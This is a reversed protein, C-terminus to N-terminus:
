YNRLSVTTQFSHSAYGLIDSIDGKELTFKITIVTPKGSQSNDCSFGCNSLKVDDATLCDLRPLASNSAIRESAPSLASLCGLSHGQCTFTTTQGDPNLIDISSMGPDGTTCAGSVQKANRMMQSMISLVYDGSQKIDTLSSSKRKSKLTLFFISVSTVVVLGLIGVVALTEILTFGSKKLNLQEM